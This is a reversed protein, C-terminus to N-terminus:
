RARGAPCPASPRPSGDGACARDRSSLCRATRPSASWRRGRSFDLDRPPNPGHSRLSGPSVGSSPVNLKSFASRPTKLPMEPVSADCPDNRRCARGARLWRRSRCARVERDLDAAVRERQVHLMRREDVAGVAVRAQLVISAHNRLEHRCATPATSSPGFPSCPRVTDSSTAISLDRMSSMMVIATFDGVGGIVPASFNFVFNRSGGPSRSTTRGAAARRVNRSRRLRREGVVVHLSSRPISCARRRSPRPPSLSVVDDRVELPLNLSPLPRSASGSASRRPAPARLHLEGAAVRELGSVSSKM